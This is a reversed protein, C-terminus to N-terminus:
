QKMRRTEGCTLEPAGIGFDRQSFRFREWSVLFQGVSRYCVISVCGCHKCTRRSGALHTGRTRAHHHSPTPVPRETTNSPLDTARNGLPSGRNAEAKRLSVGAADVARLSRSTLDSPRRQIAWEAEAPTVLVGRWDSSKPSVCRARGPRLTQPGM